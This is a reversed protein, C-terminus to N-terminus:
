IKKINTAIVNLPSRVVGVVEVQDGVALQDCPTQFVTQADTDVTHGGVTMRLIPCSGSAGSITAEM